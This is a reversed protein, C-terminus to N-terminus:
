QKRECNVQWNPSFRRGFDAISMQESLVELVQQELPADVDAVLRHPEPPVPKTRKEGRVDEVFKQLSKMRRSRNMAQQRRQFLLPSNEAQNNNWRGSDGPSGRRRGGVVSAIYFHPGILFDRCLREANPRIPKWFTRSLAALATSACPFEVTEKLRRAKVCGPGTGSTSAFFQRKAERHPCKSEGIDSYYALSDSYSRM